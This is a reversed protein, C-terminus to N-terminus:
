EGLRFPPVLDRLLVTASGPRTQVQDVVGTVESGKRRRAAPHDVTVTITSGVAPLGDVIRSTLFASGSNHREQVEMLQSGNVLRVYEIADRRVAPLALNIDGREIAISLSARELALQHRQKFKKWDDDGLELDVYATKGLGMREAMQTQTLRAQERLAKMEQVSM